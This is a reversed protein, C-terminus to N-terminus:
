FVGLRNEKFARKIVFKTLIKSIYVFFITVLLYTLILELNIKEQYILKIPLTLPSLMQVPKLYPLAFSWRKIPSFPAPLDVSSLIIAPKNGLNPPFSLPLIVVLKFVLM